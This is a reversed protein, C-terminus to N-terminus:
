QGNSGGQPDISRNDYHSRRGVGDKPRQKSPCVDFSSLQEKPNLNTPFRSQFLNDLVANQNSITSLNSSAAQSSPVAQSLSVSQISSTALDSPDIRSASRKAEMPQQDKAQQDAFSAGLHGIVLIKILLRKM